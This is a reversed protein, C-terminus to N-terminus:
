LLTFHVQWENIARLEGESTEEAKMGLTEEKKKKKM